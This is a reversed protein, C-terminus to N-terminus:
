IGWKARLGTTLAQVNAAALANGYILVHGIDGTWWNGVGSHAGVILQLSAGFAGSNDGDAVVSGTSVGDVWGLAEGSALAFDFRAAVVHWASGISPARYQSNATRYCYCELTGTINASQLQWSGTDVGRNGFSAMTRAGSNNTEKVVMVVTMATYASFNVASKAVSDNGDFRVVGLGNQIATKYTPQSGGPAQTLDLGSGWKDPWTAVATADALGMISADYEAVLTGFRRTDFGGGSAGPMGILRRLVM